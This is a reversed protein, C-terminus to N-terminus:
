YAFGTNKKQEELFKLFENSIGAWEKHCWLGCITCQISTESKKGCGLCMDAAKVGAMKVQVGLLWQHGFVHKNTRRVGLQKYWQNKAPVPEGAAWRRHMEGNKYSGHDRSSIQFVLHSLTAVVEQLLSDLLILKTTKSKLKLYSWVILVSRWIPSFMLSILNLLDRIGLVHYLYFFTTSIETRVLQWYLFWIWQSSKM